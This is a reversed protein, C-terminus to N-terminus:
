LEKREGGRGNPGDCWYFLTGNGTGMSPDVGLGSEGLAMMMAGNPSRGARGVRM